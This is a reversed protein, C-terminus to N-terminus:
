HSTLGLAASLALLALVTSTIAVFVWDRQQRFLQLSVGVRLVPTLMLVVLGGAVMGQGRLERIGALVDMLRHPGPAPATVRQLAQSPTFGDPHHLFTIATGAAILAVSVLVGTRLLFALAQEPAAAARPEARGDTLAGDKM